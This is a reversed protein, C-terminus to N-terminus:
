LSSLLSRGNSELHRWLKMYSEGASLLKLMKEHRGWALSIEKCAHGGIFIVVQAMSKARRRAEQKRPEKSNNLDEHSKILKECTEQRM